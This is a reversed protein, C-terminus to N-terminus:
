TRRRRGMFGMVGLAGALLPLAAPLPIANVQVAEISATFGGTTFDDIVSCIDVGNCLGVPGPGVAYSVFGNDLGIGESAGSPDDGLPGGDLTYVFGFLDLLGMTFGSVLSNGSFSLTFASLEAPGGETPGGFFVLQGDNDLDEGTFSGSVTAGEDFGGQTFTYTTTGALAPATALLALVTAVFANNLKVMAM